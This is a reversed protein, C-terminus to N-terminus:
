LQIQAVCDLGIADFLWDRVNAQVECYHVACMQSRSLCNPFADATEVMATNLFNYFAHPTCICNVRSLSTYGQLKWVAAWCSCWHAHACNEYRCCVALHEVASGILCLTIINWSQRNTPKCGFQSCMSWGEPLRPIVHKDFTWNEACGSRM